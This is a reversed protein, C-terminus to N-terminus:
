AAALATALWERTSVAAKTHSGSECVPAALVPSGRPALLGPGRLATGKGRRASPGERASPWLGQSQRSHPSNRLPLRDGPRYESLCVAWASGLSRPFSDVTERLISPKPRLPGTHSGLSGQERGRAEGLGREEAKLELSVEQSGGSGGLATRRRSDSGGARRRGQPKYSCTDTPGRRGRRGARGHSGRM